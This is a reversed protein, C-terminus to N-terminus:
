ARVAKGEQLLTTMLLVADASSGLVGWKEVSARCSRTELLTRCFDECEKAAAQVRWASMPSGQENASAKVFSDPKGRLMCRLVLYMIPLAMPEDAIDMLLPAM